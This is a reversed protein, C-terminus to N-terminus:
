RSISSRKMSPLATTGRVRPCPTGVRSNPRPSNRKSSRRGPPSSTSRTSWPATSSPSATRRALAFGRHAHPAHPHRHRRLQLPASHHRLRQPTALGIGEQRQHRHAARLVVFSHALSLPFGVPKSTNIRFQIQEEFPYNTQQIIEVEQANPGVTTKVRSPGYLAAVLGGHSDKMWMRIVLNPYLRHVDGGCCATRQGPNPQFAMMRGGHEMINHDSTLTALFQNPCSFYQLAKWDKKIAGFGANMCAREIHDAWRADGTAMLMYGWSWTHDTMDCTEHSDLSTRTRFFESTSPIGDVLMHHDLIRRQAALAFKLYDQNGTYLYLIAPQKSTEAYTVGHADIPTAAFVRLLALDGGDAGPTTVTLYDRWANEALDLLRKTAPAPTFGSSTKSTPSTAFPSATTPKTM